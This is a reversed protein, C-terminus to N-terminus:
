FTKLWAFAKISLLNCSNNAQETKSKIYMQARTCLHFGQWDCACKLFWDLPLVSNSFIRSHCCLQSWIDKHKLQKELTQFSSTLWTNKKKEWFIIRLSNTIELYCCLTSHKGERLHWHPSFTNKLCWYTIILM